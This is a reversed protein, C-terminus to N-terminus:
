EKHRCPENTELIVTEYRCSGSHRCNCKLLKSVDAAKLKEILLEKAKIREAQWKLFLERAKDTGNEALENMLQTEIDM